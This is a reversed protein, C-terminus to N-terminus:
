HMGIYIDGDEEQLLILSCRQIRTIIMEKDQIEEDVKLIYDIVIDQTLPEQACLSLFSFTHNLVKNSKVIENVALKTAATMSKPYSPNTDALITETTSRQGKGLKELYENWGFHSTKRQRLQKVYTAASALALPQYDLAEAVKREMDSDAIGSLDALLSYADDPKM